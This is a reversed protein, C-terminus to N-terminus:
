QGAPGSRPRGAAGPVRQRARAARRLADRVRTVDPSDDARRRTAALRGPPSSAALVM